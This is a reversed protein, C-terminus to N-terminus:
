PVHSRLGPGTFPSLAPKPITELPCHSLLPRSLPSCKHHYWFIIKRPLRNGRETLPFWVGPQLGDSSVPPSASNHRLLAAGFTLSLCPPNRSRCRWKLQLAQRLLGPRQCLKPTRWSLHGILGGSLVLPKWDNSRYKVQSSIQRRSSQLLQRPSALRMGRPISFKAM